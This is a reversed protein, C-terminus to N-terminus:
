IKFRGIIWGILAGILGFYISITLFSLWGTSVLGMFQLPLALVSLIFTPGCGMDGCLNLVNGIFEDLVLLALSIVAGILFGKVALKM